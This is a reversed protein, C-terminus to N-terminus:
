ATQATVHEAAAIDGRRDPDANLVIVSSGAGLVPRVLTDRVIPWPDTAAVPAILTRSGLPAQAAVDAQSLDRNRGADIWASSHAQPPPGGFHDGHARVEVGFDLVGAPLPDSFGLGLPHLSCAVREDAGGDSDLSAPGVVEVAADDAASVAVPCGYRWAAAVWVLTTWHGPAEEAITMRVSRGPEVLLEDSLLNATKDVWNGFSHASLETREGTHEDYYTILPNAGDRAIRDQLRRSFLEM